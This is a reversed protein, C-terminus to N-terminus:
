QMGSDKPKRYQIKLMPAYHYNGDYATATRNGKGDIIFAMANGSQWDPKNIIAQVIEKCDSSEYLEGGTWREPSWEVYNRTRPRKSIDFDLPTFSTPNADDVGFIQLDTELYDTRDAYFCLKASCIEACPPIEVGAFRLGIIQDIEDWTLELDSSDLYMKGKGYEEADDARSNVSIIANILDTGPENYTIFHTPPFIYQNHPPKGALAPAQTAYNLKSMVLSTVTVLIILVGVLVAVNRAQYESCTRLSLPSNRRDSKGQYCLENLALELQGATQYRSAPNPTSAKAIVRALREPIAPNLKHLEPIELTPLSGSSRDSNCLTRNTEADRSSLGNSPCDRAVLEYLVRGIGYIDSREDAAGIMQEPAMYRPTGIMEGSCSLDNEDDRLKALGFDTVWITGDRALILNAPKIDRHIMGQSHAHSLASAVQAGLKAIRQWDHCIDEFMLYLQPNVSADAAILKDLSIGDIM